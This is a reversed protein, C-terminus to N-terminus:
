VKDYFNENEKRLGNPFMEKRDKQECESCFVKGKEKPTGCNFCKSFANLGYITSAELPKAGAFAESADAFVITVGEINQPEKCNFCETSMYGEGSDFQYFRLAPLLLSLLITHIDLVPTKIWM